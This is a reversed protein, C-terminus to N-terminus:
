QKSLTLYMPSRLLKYAIKPSYQHQDPGPDMCNHCTIMHLSVYCVRECVCMCVDCVACMVCMISSMCVGDFVGCIVGCECVASWM